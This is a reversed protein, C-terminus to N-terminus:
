ANREGDGAKHHAIEAYGDFVVLEDDAALLGVVGLPYVQMAADGRTLKLPRKDERLSDFHTAGRKVIPKQVDIQNAGFHLAPHPDHLYLVARAGPRLARRDRRGCLVPRREPSAALFLFMISISRIRCMDVCSSAANPM